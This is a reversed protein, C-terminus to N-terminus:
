RARHSRANRLTTTAPWSKMVNSQRPKKIVAGDESDSIEIIDADFAAVCKRKAQPDVFIVENDEEKITPLKPTCSRATERLVATSRNVHPTAPYAPTISRCPTSPTSQRPTSSPSPTSPVPTTLARRQQTYMTYWKKLAKFLVWENANEFSYEDDDSIALLEPEITEDRYQLVLDCGM